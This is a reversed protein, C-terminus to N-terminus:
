AGDEKIQTTACSELEIRRFTISPLLFKRSKRRASFVYSSNTKNIGSEGHLPVFAIAHFQKSTPLPVQWIQIGNFIKPTLYFIHLFFLSCYRSLSVFLNCAFDPLADSWFVEIVKILGHWPMHLCNYIGFSTM